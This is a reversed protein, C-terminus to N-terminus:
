KCKEEMNVWYYVNNDRIYEQKHQTPKIIKIMGKNKGRTIFKTYGSLKAGELVLDDIDEPFLDKYYDFKKILLAKRNSKCIKNLEIDNEFWEPFEPSTASPNTDQRTFYSGTNWWYGRSGKGGGGCFADIFYNDGIDKLIIELIEKAIRNKSGMYIM